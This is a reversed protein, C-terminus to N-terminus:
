YQSNIAASVRGHTDAHFIHHHFGTYIGAGLLLAGVASVIAAGILRPRTIIRKKPPTFSGVLFDSLLGAGEFPQGIVPKIGLRKELRKILLHLNQYRRTIKPRMCKRITRLTFRSINPNHKRPNKYKGKIIRQYTEPLKGSPYPKKGTIMEYLMVGLSYIDARHDVDRSSTFQEPAMYSPTGLTMGVQTLDDDTRQDRISAIGFDVLKVSGSNSILINGPKIDRHVVGKSHAYQLARASYLLVYLAIHEPLYRERDILEELSIGDIYEQVIHFAGHEAFHDYVDVIYDSKFSFMLKAERLFRKQVHTKGQMTLKKIVLLQDLTPHEAKYVDGMGGTAILGLIKYKGIKAPIDAM